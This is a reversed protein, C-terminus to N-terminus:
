ISNMLSFIATLPPKVEFHFEMKLVAQMSSALSKLVPKRAGVGNWIM